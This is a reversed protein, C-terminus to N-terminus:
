TRLSHGRHRRHGSGTRSKKWAACNSIQDIRRGWPDYQTLVPINKEAEESWNLWDGAAKAGVDKLHTTVEKRYTDPIIRTIYETLNVDTEYTNTLPPVDQYFETNQM